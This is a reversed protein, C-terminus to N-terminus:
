LSASRQLASTNVGRIILWAGLAFEALAGVAMVGGRIAVAFPPAILTCASLALWGVGGAALLWGIPPPVLRSLAFLPGMILWQAGFFFLAMGYGQSYLKLSLLALEQRDPLPMAHPFGGALLLLPVVPIVTAVILVFCGALTFLLSVAAWSRSVTRLLTYLLYALAIYIAYGLLDTVLTARYLTESAQIHAATAAPDSPVILATRLSLPVSAIVYPIYLAGTLRARKMLGTTDTEADGAPM